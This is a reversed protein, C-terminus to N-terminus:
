KLVSFRMGRATHVQKRSRTLAGVDLEAGAALGIISLCAGELISLDGVTELSLIGLVYPGVLVGAVLYGTIQPLRLWRAGQGAYYSFPALIAAVCFAVVAHQLTSM